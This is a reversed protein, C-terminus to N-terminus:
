LNWIREGLTSIPDPHVVRYRAPRMRSQLRRELLLLYSLTGPVGSKTDLLSRMSPALTILHEEVFYKLRKRSVLAAFPLNYLVGDPIVVIQDDASSRCISVYQSRCLSKM